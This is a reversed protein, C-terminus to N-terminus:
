RSRAPTTGARRACRSPSDWSEPWLASASHPSAGPDALTGYTVIVEALRGARSCALSNCPRPSDPATLIIQDYGPHATTV